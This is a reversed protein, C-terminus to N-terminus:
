ICYLHIQKKGISMIIKLPSSFSLQRVKSSEHDNYSVSLTKGNKKDLM